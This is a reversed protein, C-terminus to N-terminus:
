TRDPLPAGFINLRIPPIGGNFLFSDKGIKIRYQPYSWALGTATRTHRVFLLLVM